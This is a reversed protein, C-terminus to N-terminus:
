KWVERWFAVWFQLPWLPAFHVQVRVASGPRAARYAVFDLIKASMFGGKRATPATRKPNPLASNRAAGPLDPLLRRQQSAKKLRANVQNCFELMLLAYGM